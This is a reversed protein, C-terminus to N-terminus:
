KIHTQLYYGHTPKLSVFYNLIVSYDAKATKHYILGKIQCRPLKIKHSKLLVIFVLWNQYKYGIYQTLVNGRIKVYCELLTGAM